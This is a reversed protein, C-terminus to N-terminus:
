IVAAVSSEAISLADMEKVESFSVSKMRATMEADLILKQVMLVHIHIVRVSFMASRSQFSQIQKLLSGDSKNQSASAGCIAFMNQGFFFNMFIELIEALITQRAADENPLVNQHRVMQM